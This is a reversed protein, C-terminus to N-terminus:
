FYLPSKNVWPWSEWWMVNQKVGTNHLVLLQWEVHVGATGLTSLASRVSHTNRYIVITKSRINSKVLGEPKQNITSDQTFTLVLFLEIYFPFPSVNSACPNWKRRGERSKQMFYINFKSYFERSFNSKYLATSSIAQVLMKKKKRKNVSKLEKGWSRSPTYTM